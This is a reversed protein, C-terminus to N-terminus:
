EIMGKIALKISLKNYIAGDPTKCGKLKLYILNTTKTLGYKDLFIFIQKYIDYDNNLWLSVNWANWSRHGNYSKQM